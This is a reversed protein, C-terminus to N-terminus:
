DLPVPYYGMLVTKGDDRFRVVFAKTYRKRYFVIEQQSIRNWTLRRGQMNYVLTNADLGVRSARAPRKERPQPKIAMGEGFFDDVSYEHDHHALKVSKRASDAVWGTFADPRLTGTIRVGNKAPNITYSYLRNEKHNFEMWRTAGHLDDLTEDQYDVLINHVINGADNRRQIYSTGRQHGCFVAQIRANKRILANWLTDGYPQFGMDSIYDHTTIFVTHEPHKDILTQAWSISATPAQHELHIWLLSGSDSSIIQYQNQSQGAPFGGGFWPKGEWWDLGFNRNYEIYDAGKDHNGPAIGWPIGANKITHMATRAIKWESMQDANDVVDGMHSVFVIKLSDANKYFWQTLANFRRVNETENHGAYAHTLRQTDGIIGITFDNPFGSLGIQILLVLLFIRLLIFM